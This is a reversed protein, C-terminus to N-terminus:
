GAQLKLPKLGLRQRAEACESSGARFRRCPGPRTTYVSCQNNAALFPCGDLFPLPHLQYEWEDSRQWEPVRRAEAEIRPERRADNISVLVPYTKCCAGCCDCPFEVLDGSLDEELKLESRNLAM